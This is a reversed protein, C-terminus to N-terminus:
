RLVDNSGSREAKIEKRMVAHQIIQLITTISWYLCLAPTYSFSFVAIMLPLMLNMMRMTMGMSGEQQQAGMSQRQMVVTSVVTILPLILSLFLQPGIGSQAYIQSPSLMMNSIWLFSGSAAEVGGNVFVYKEPARVIGFLVIVLVLQLILPLCGGLPNVGYEQYVKMMEESLKQQNNKYKVKLAEIKPMIENNSEQMKIQKATIPIQIVKALIAFIVIALGYNGVFQYIWYLIKGFLNYLLSM